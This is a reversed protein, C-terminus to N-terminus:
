RAKRRAHLTIVEFHPARKERSTISCLTVQFGAAEAMARLREPEFGM